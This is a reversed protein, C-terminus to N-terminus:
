MDRARRRLMVVFVAAVAGAGLALVLVSIGPDTSEVDTPSDDDVVHFRVEAVSSDGMADTARVVITYDGPFGSRFLFSANGGVQDSDLFWRISTNQNEPDSAIAELLVSSGVVIEESSPIGGITLNPPKNIIIDWTLAASNCNGALDCAGVDLVSDTRSTSLLVEALFDDGRKTLSTLNAGLKSSPTLFISDADVGSLLDTIFGNVVVTSNGRVVLSTSISSPPTKDVGFGIPGLYVTQSTTSDLVSWTASYWGESADFHASIMCSGLVLCLTSVDASEFVLLGEPDRIRLMPMDVFTDRGLPDALLVSLEVDSTNIWGLPSFETGTIASSDITVTGQVLIAVNGVNDSVSWVLTYSGDALNWLLSAQWNDSSQEWISLEPPGVPISSNTKQDVFEVQCRSPDLGSGGADRIFSAITVDPRSTANGVPSVFDVVPADADVLLFFALVEAFSSGLPGTGIRLQCDLRTSYPPMNGINISLPIGSWTETRNSNLCGVEISIGPDNIPPQTNQHYSITVNDLWVATQGKLYNSDFPGCSAITCALGTWRPEIERSLQLAPHYGTFMSLNSTWTVNIYGGLSAAAFTWSAIYRVDMRWAWLGTGQQTQTTSSDVIQIGSSFSYAPQGFQLRWGDQAPGTSNAVYIIARPADSPGSTCVATLTVISTNAFATTRNTSATSSEATMECGGVSENALQWVVGQQTVILLEASGDEELDVMAPAYFPNGPVETTFLLSGNSGSLIRLGGSQNLAVVDAGAVSDVGGTVPGLSSRGVSTSNWLSQNLNVSVATVDDGWLLADEWGDGDLDAVAIARVGDPVRTWSRVDGTSPELAIVGGLSGSSFFSCRFGQLVFTGGRSDRALRPVDVMRFDTPPAGCAESPNRKWVVAGDLTYRAVYGDQSGVLLGTGAGDDVFTPLGSFSRNNVITTRPIGTSYDVVQVRTDLWSGIMIGESTATALVVTAGELVDISRIFSGNVINLVALHSPKSTNLDSVAVLVESGQAPDVDVLSILGIEAAGAFQSHARWVWRIQGRQDLAFVHTQNAVVLRPGGPSAAVVLNSLSYTSLNTLQVLQDPLGKTSANAALTARSDFYLTPWPDASPSTALPTREVDLPEASVSDIVLPLVLLIALSVVAHNVPLMGAIEGEGAM